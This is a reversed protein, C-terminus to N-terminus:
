KGLSFKNVFRFYVMDPDTENMKKIPMVSFKGNKEVYIPLGLFEDVKEVTEYEVDGIKIKKLDM